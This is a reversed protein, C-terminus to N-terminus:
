GVNKGMVYEYDGLDCKSILSITTDDVMMNGSTIKKFLKYCSLQKMKARTKKKCPPDMNVRTKTADTKTGSM